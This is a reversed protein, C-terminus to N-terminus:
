GAHTDLDNPLYDEPVLEATMERIGDVVWRPVTHGGNTIVWALQVLGEAPEGHDVLSQANSMEGAPVLGSVAILLGQVRGLYEDM